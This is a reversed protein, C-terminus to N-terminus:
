GNVCPMVAGAGSYGVQDTIDAMTLATESRSPRDPSLKDADASRPRRGFPVAGNVTMLGAVSAGSPSIVISSGM